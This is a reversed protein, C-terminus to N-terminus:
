RKFEEVIQNRSRTSKHRSRRRDDDGERDDRDDYRQEDRQREIDDDNNPINEIDEIEIVDDIGKTPKEHRDWENGRGDKSGEKKAAVAKKSRLRTGRSGVWVASIPVGKELIQLAQQRLLGNHVFAYEANGQEKGKSSRAGKSITVISCSSLKDIESNHSAGFHRPTPRRPSPKIVEWEEFNELLEFEPYLLYMGMDRDLFHQLEGITGPAQVLSNRSTEGENFRNVFLTNFEIFAEDQDPPLIIFELM